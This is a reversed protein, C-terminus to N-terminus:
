YFISQLFGLSLLSLKLAVSDDFKRLLFGSVTLGSRSLGPIIALGQLFGLIIGDATKLDFEEKYYKNGKKKFQLFATVLLALGILLTLGKGGLSIENEIFILIRLIVLGVIGSVITALIYFNIIRKNKEETKRYNLFNLFLKIAEKRFYVLAALFTGLHLFLAYSILNSLNLDGKFLNTKLLVIIGESSIPLWEAIGQVVGLTISEMM